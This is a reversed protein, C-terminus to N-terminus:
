SGNGELLRRVDTIVDLVQDEFSGRAKIAEAARELAPAVKTHVDNILAERQDWAKDREGIVREHEKKGIVFGTVFLVVFIGLPGYILLADTAAV